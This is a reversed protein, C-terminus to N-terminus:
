ANLIQVIARMVEHLLFARDLKELTSAFGRPSHWWKLAPLFSGGRQYPTGHNECPHTINHFGTAPCGVGQIIRGWQEGCTYCTFVYGGLRLDPVIEGLPIVENRFVVSRM